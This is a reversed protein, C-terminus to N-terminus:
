IENIITSILTSYTLTGLSRGNMDISLIPMIWSQSVHHSHYNVARIIKQTLGNWQQKM